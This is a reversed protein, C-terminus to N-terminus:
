IIFSWGLLENTMSPKEKVTAQKKGRYFAYAFVAWYLKSTSYEFVSLILFAFMFATIVIETYDYQKKKISDAVKVLTILYLVIALCGGILGLQLFYDHAHPASSLELLNRVGTTSMYGYGLIPRLAIKDIAHEWIIKRGSFTLSGGLVDTIFLGSLNGIISLVVFSIFMVLVIGMFSYISFLRPQMKNIVESLVIIIFMALSGVMTTLSRLNVAMIVFGVIFLIYFTLGVRSRKRLDYEGKFFLFYILYIGFGNQASFFLTRQNSYQQGNYTFNNPYLGGPFSVAVVSDIITMLMLYLICAQWLSDIDDIENDILMVM